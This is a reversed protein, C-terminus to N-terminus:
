LDIRIKLQELLDASGCRGSASRNGHKVVNVGCAAVVFATTTSINFTLKQDGGTGCTDVSSSDPLPFLIASQLLSDAFGAIEDPVPGRVKLIALLAAIRSTPENGSTIANMARLAEARSLKEGASLKPLLELLVSSADAM